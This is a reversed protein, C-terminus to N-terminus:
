FKEPHNGPFIEPKSAGDHIILWSILEFDTTKTVQQEKPPLLAKKGTNFLNNAVRKTFTRSLSSVAKDLLESERKMSCGNATQQQFLHCLDEYAQTKGACLLRYIELIQKPQVFNYRVEGTSWIYVLFYPHLPNVQENASNNGQQELCFIIGPKISPYDPHPPVLAYLGLPAM